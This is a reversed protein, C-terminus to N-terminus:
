VPLWDFVPVRNLALHLAPSPSPARPEPTPAQPEPTPVRSDPDDSTALRRCVAL